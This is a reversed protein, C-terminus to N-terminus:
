VRAAERPAFNIEPRYGLSPRGGVVVVVVAPSRHELQRRQQDLETAVAFSIPWPGCLPAPSSSASAPPSARRVPSSAARSPPWLGPPHMTDPPQGPCPSSATHPRANNKKANM